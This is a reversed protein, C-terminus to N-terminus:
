LLLLKFENNILLYLLYILPKKFIFFLYIFFLRVTKYRIILLLQNKILHLNLHKVKRREFFHIIKNWIMNKHKFVM